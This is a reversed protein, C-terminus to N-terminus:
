IGGGTAVEKQWLICFKEECYILISDVSFTLAIAGDSKM